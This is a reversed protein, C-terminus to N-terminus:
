TSPRSATVKRRRMLSIISFGARVSMSTYRHFRLFVIQDDNSCSRSAVDRCDTCRLKAQVDGANFFFGREAPRAQADTADRALGQQFRGFSKPFGAMRQRCMANTDPLDVQVKGRHEM